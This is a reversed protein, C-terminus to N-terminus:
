AEVHVMGVDDFYCLTRDTKTPKGRHRACRIMVKGTRPLTAKVCGCKERKEWKVKRPKDMVSPM